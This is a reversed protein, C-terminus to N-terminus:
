YIRINGSSVDLDIKHKGTGHTGSLSRNSNNQNNLPFDCTISGSSSKGNLTFSANDPLDLDVTGSSVEIEIDDVLKNMEVSLKGSSLDANLKGSYDELDLSGSSIDFEGTKTTLSTIDVNGSSGDHEFHDVKLNNLKMNGSGIDISLKTLNMPKNKSKGSFHLNGSGLTIEMSDQYDEPLYIKLKEQGFSFFNFWKRKATVTIKNGSQDIRVKGQGTLEAKIDDRDEPIITTSLSSVDIEILEVENTVNAQQASRGFPLWDIIVWNTFIWYLGILVLFILLIKKM